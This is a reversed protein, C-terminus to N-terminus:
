SPLYKINEQTRKINLNILKQNAFPLVANSVGAMLIHTVYMCSTNGVNKNKTVCVNLM